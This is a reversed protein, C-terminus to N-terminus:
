LKQPLTVFRIARYDDREYLLGLREDPLAALSSYAASGPDVM